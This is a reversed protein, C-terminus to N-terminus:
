ELLGSSTKRRKIPESNHIRLNLHIISQAMGTKGAATRDTERRDRQTYPRIIDSSVRVTIAHTLECGQTM